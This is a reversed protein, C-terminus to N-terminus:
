HTEKHKGRIRHHKQTPQLNNLLAINMRHIKVLILHIISRKVLSPIHCTKSTMLLMATSQLLWLHKLSMQLPRIPSNRQIGRLRSRLISLHSLAKDKNFYVDREITIWRRQPWYVHYGKSEKEFGVFQGEDCRSELKGTNLRQVWATM